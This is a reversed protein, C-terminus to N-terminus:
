QSGFVPKLLARIIHNLQRDFELYPAHEPAIPQTEMKSQTASARDWFDKISETELQALNVWEQTIVNTQSKMSVQYRLNLIRILTQAMTCDKPLIHHMSPDVNMRLIRLMAINDITTGPCTRDNFATQLTFPNQPDAPNEWRAHRLLTPDNCDVTYNDVYPNAYADHRMHEFHVTYITNGTIAAIGKLDALWDPFKAINDYSLLFATKSKNNDTM